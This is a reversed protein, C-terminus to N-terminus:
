LARSGRLRRWAVVALTAVTLPIVFFMMAQSLVPLAAHHEAQLVLFLVYIGYYAVFLGGEWRAIRHGSFFIPLCALTVAIMVPVDFRLAPEPVPVGDATLLATLGLV